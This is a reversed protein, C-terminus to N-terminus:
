CKSRCKSPQIRFIVLIAYTHYIYALPPERMFCCPAFNKQVGGAGKGSPEFSRFVFQRRIRGLQIRLEGRRARFSSATGYRTGSTHAVIATIPGNESYGTSRRDKKKAETAKRHPVAHVLSARLASLRDRICM